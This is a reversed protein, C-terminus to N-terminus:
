YFRMNEIVTLSIYISSFNAIVYPRSTATIREITLLNDFDSFPLEYIMGGSYYTRLKKLFAIEKGFEGRQCIEFYKSIFTTRCETPSVYVHLRSLYLLMRYRTKFESLNIRVHWVAPIRTWQLCVQLKCFYLLVKISSQIFGCYCTGRIFWM